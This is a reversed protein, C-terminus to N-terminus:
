QKIFQLIADVARRYGGAKLMDERMLQAHRYFDPDERIRAVAERLTHTTLSSRPLLVGLKLKEVIKATYEQEEIMEAPTVVVPVGYYLAEMVSNLGCHNISIDAHQLIHLQPVYSALICNNPVPGFVKPDVKGISVVVQQGRNGFASLCIDYLYASNNNVSGMSFYLVKDKGLLEYPFDTIEKRLGLSPGIFVFRQEDFTEEMPHFTRTMFIINLPDTHYVIDQFELPAIGYIKCLKKLNERMEHTGTATDKTYDYRSYHENMAYTTFLKISPKCLIYSLLKGWICLDEYLIFDPDYSKIDELVQPIVYFADSVMPFRHQMFKPTPNYPLFTAGCSKVVKEFEHVTCLTVEMGRAVLEQVIALIPNTHGEYQSTCFLFKTM